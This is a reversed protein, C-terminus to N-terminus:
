SESPSPDPTSESSAPSDGSSESLERAISPLDFSATANEVNTMLHDALIRSAEMVKKLGARVRPDPFFDILEEQFAKVARLISDGGMARGFDEDSVNQADAQEKCLVYLVDVLTIPDSLLEGLPRMSDTALKYLDVGVLARCRKAAAVNISFVWPRGSNDIFTKM